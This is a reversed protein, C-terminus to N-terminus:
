LYNSIRVRFQAAAFQPLQKTVAHVRDRRAHHEQNASFDYWQEIGIALNASPTGIKQPPFILPSPGVVVQVIGVGTMNIIQPSGGGSHQISLIGSITGLQKPKFTVTTTCSAGPALTSPCAPIQSYSSSNISFKLGTMPLSSINTLTVTQPNSSGGPFASFFDLQFPTVALDSVLLGTGM